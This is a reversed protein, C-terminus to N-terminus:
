IKVLFQLSLHWNDALQDESANNPGQWPLEKQRGIKFEYRLQPSWRWKLLLYFGEQPFYFAPVQFRYSLDHAYAYIRLDTAPVQALSVRAVISLKEQAQWKLDQLFAWAVQKHHTLHLQSSVQVGHWPPWNIKVQWRSLWKQEQWKLNQRLRLTWKRKRDLTWLLLHNVQWERQTWGSSSWADHSFRWLQKIELAALPWWQLFFQGKLRGKHGHHESLISHYGLDWHEILFSLRLSQVSRYILGIRQASKGKQDIALAGLLLFSTFRWSGFSELNFQKNGQFGFPGRQEQLQHNLTLAHGALGLAVQRSRWKLEGGLTKERVGQATQRQLPSNHLGSQDFSSFLGAPNWGNIDRLRSGGFLHASWQQWQGALAAGRLAQWENNGAYARSSRGRLFIDSPEQSLFNRYATWAGLGHGQQLHFNGIIFHQLPGLERLELYGQYHDFGSKSWVEGPDQELNLALSLHKGWHSEWRNQWRFAAVNELASAATDSPLSFSLYSRFRHRLPSNWLRQWQQRRPPDLRYNLRGKLHAVTSSDFGKIVRLEFAGLLPGSQERYFLLNATQFPDLGLALLDDASCFNVQVAEQAGFAHDEQNWEEPLQGGDLVSANGPNQALVAPTWLGLLVAFILQRVM